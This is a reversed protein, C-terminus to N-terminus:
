VLRSNKSALSASGCPAVSLNGDDIETHTYAYGLTATLEPTFRFEADVEAGWARGKNANVLQTLNAAGGIASFQQHRITYDFVDANIRARHDWLEAKVGAEYSM